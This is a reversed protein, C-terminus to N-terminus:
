DKMAVGRRYLIEAYFTSNSDIKSIIEYYYYQMKINKQIKILILM